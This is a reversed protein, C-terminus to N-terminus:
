SHLHECATSEVEPYKKKFDFRHGSSIKARRIQVLMKRGARWTKLSQIYTSYVVSILCFILVSGAIFRLLM